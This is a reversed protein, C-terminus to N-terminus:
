PIEACFAPHILHAEVFSESETAAPRRAALFAALFQKPIYNFVGHMFDVTLPRFGFGGNM